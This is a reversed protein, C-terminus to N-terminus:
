PKRIKALFTWYPYGYEWADMLKGTRYHRYFRCRVWHKLHM